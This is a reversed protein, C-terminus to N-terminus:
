LVRLALVVAAGGLLAGAALWDRRTMHLQRRETRPGSNLGRVAMAMALQDSLRVSAIVLATLIPVFRRVRVLVNGSELDLGRAEQAQKITTYLGAAIPIYRLALTITLGTTYPLGLQVLGRVLDDQRTAFLPMLALLALVNARIAITLAAALGGTTLRAPGLAALTDGEVVFWPQIILILLTLPLLSRLVWGIHPAPIHGLWLVLVVAGLMVALALADPLLFATLSGVVAGLLKVRPDLRHLWSNAHVYLDVALSM